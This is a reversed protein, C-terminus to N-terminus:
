PLFLNMTSKARCKSTARVQPVSTDIVIAGGDASYNGSRASFFTSSEVFPRTSTPQDNPPLCDHESIPFHSSELVVLTLTSITSSDSPIIAM